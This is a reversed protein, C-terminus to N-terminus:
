INKKPSDRNINYGSPTNSYVSYFPCDLRLARVILFHLRLEAQLGPLFGQLKMPLLLFLANCQVASPRTELFRVFYSVGDATRLAPVLIRLHVYTTRWAHAVM